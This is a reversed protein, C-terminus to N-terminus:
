PRAHKKVTAALSTPDSHDIRRTISRIPVLAAATGAAMVEQFNPLEAYKIQLNDAALRLPTSLLPSRLAGITERGEM